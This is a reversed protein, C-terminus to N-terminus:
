KGILLKMKTEDLARKKSNRSKEDKIIGHGLEDRTFLISMVKNIWKNPASEHVAVLNKGEFLVESKEAKNNNSKSFKKILLDQQKEIVQSQENLLQSQKDVKNTLKVL